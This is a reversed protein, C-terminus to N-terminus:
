PECRANLVSGLENMLLTKTSLGGSAPADAEDESSEDGVFLVRADREQPLSLGGLTRQLEAFVTAGLPAAARDGSGLAKDNDASSPAGTYASFVQTAREGAAARAARDLSSVAETGDEGGEHVWVGSAPGPPRATRPKVTARRLTSRMPVTKSAPADIAAAAEEAVLLELHAHAAAFHPQLEVVAAREGGGAFVVRGVRRARGCSAGECSM